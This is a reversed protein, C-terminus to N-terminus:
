TMQYPVRENPHFDQFYKLLITKMREISVYSLHYIRIVKNNETLNVRFVGDQALLEQEVREYTSGDFTNGTTEIDTFFATEGKHKVQFYAEEYLKSESFLPKPIEQQEAQVQSLANFSLVCGLIIMTAKM